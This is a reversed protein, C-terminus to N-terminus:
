SPFIIACHLEDLLEDIVPIPYRDKVTAANLARFDICLRWTSDKKKVLLVPSSFPSNSSRVIRADLMEQIISDIENKVRGSRYPRVNVPATGPTLPIRHDVPRKPPLNTPALFLEEFQSLLVQIKIPITATHQRDDPIVVLQTIVGM